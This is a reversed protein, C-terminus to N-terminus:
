LRIGGRFHTSEVASRTKIGSRSFRNGNKSGYRRM